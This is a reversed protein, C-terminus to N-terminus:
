VFSRFAEQPEDCGADTSIKSLSVVPPRRRAPLARLGQNAYGEGHWDECGHHLSHWAVSRATGARRLGM